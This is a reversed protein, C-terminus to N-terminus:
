ADLIQRVKRTLAGSTFPKGLYEVTADVVASKVAADDTYGSVFLIKSEPRLKAFREALLRGNMGPMVMDTLLLDIRDNRHTALELASVGDTATLVQYGHRELVESVMLRIPADDEVVLVTESGRLSESSTSGLAATTAPEPMRPLYLKFMSGRDPESDVVIFGGAQQVIGYVTSLGLGTGKGREKTTYFPEFIRARTESDMGVGTDSVSLMVYSGAPHMTEGDTFTEPITVDRTAILLSGGAAMADRANVALNVVVQELRGPDALVTDAEADLSLTLQIHEGILRELMKGTASVLVNLRLPRPQLMEQRSSILLQRTLAAASEAAKRIAEIDERQQEPPMPDALLLDSYSLIVTLLNNFDHAIGGALRGLADMKQAQRFREESQRLETIDEAVGVFRYVTGNEDRVPYSRARVWRTSGDPRMVRFVVSSPDGNRVSALGASVLPRDDHHIAAFWISHDSADEIPRGWIQSWVPSTYLSRSEAIDVVFFAENMHDAMQRFRHESAALEENAMRRENLMAAPILASMSALALYSYANFVQTLASSGAVGFLGTIHAADWTTVVCLVFTAAAAGWPGIRLAVWILLPFVIYPPGAVIGSSWPHASLLLHALVGTAILTVAAEIVARRRLRTRTRVLEAVTLVLPTVMLMGIGDGMWWVFWTRMVYQDFRGSRMALAGVFATGANSLVAAGLFLAGVERLTGLTMRGAVIRRLLAAAVFSELVNAAAGALAIPLTANHTFDAVFNGALGGALLPRWWRPEALLLAALLLGGPFWVAVGATQVAFAYSLRAALFYAVAMAFAITLWRGPTM